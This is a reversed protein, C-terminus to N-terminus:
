KHENHRSKIRKITQKLHTFLKKNGYSSFNFFIDGDFQKICQQHHVLFTGSFVINVGSNMLVKLKTRENVQFIFSYKSKLGTQKPSTITTYTVDNESHLESTQANVCMVTKWCGNGISDNQYLPNDYESSNLMTNAADLITSNLYIITPLTSTFSLMTLQIENCCLQEYEKAKNDIEKQVSENKVKKNCYNKISSDAITSDAIKSRAGLNGFSFYYGTSGHHNNKKTITNNKIKKITDFDNSTWQKVHSNKNNKMNKSTAVM